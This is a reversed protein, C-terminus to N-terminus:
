SWNATKMEIGISKSSSQRCTTSAINHKENTSNQLVCMHATSIIGLTKQM